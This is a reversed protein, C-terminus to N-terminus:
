HRARCTGSVVSINPVVTRSMGIGIRASSIPGAVPEATEPRTRSAVAKRRARADNVNRHVPGVRDARDLPAGNGLGTHPVFPDCGSRRSTRNESTQMQELETM